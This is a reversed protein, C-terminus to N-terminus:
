KHARHMLFRSVAWCRKKSHGQALAIQFRTASQHEHACIFAAPQSSLSSMSSQNACVNVVPCCIPDCLTWVSLRTDTSGYSNLRKWLDLIRPLRHGPPSWLSLGSSPKLGVGPDQESLPLADLYHTIKKTFKARCLRPQRLSRRERMYDALKHKERIM